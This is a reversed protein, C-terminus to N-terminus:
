GDCLRTPGLSCRGPLSIGRSNIKGMGETVFQCYQQRADTLSDPFNGLLWETTLFVPQKKQGPPALYSSWLYHEPQAMM